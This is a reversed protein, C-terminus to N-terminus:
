TLFCEYFPYKQPRILLRGTSLIDLQTLQTCDGIRSLGSKDVGLLCFPTTKSDELFDNLGEM